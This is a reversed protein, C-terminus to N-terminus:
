SEKYYSSSKSEFYELNDAENLATEESDSSFTVDTYYRELTEKFKSEGDSSNLGSISNDFGSEAKMEAYSQTEAKIDHIPGMM